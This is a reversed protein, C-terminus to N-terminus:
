GKSPVLGPPPRSREGPETAAPPRRATILLSGALERLLPTAELARGVASVAPILPEPTRPHLWDFPVIAVDEFGAQRLQRALPWRLFATEEPSVYWFLPKV